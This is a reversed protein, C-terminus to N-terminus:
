RGRAKALRRWLWLPARLVPYLFRLGKPLPTHVRDHVSVGRYRLQAVANPWTGCLAFQALLIRARAFPRAELEREGVMSKLGIRVLWSAGRVRRLEDLLAAPIAAGLL